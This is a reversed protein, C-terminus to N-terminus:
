WRLKQSFCSVATQLRGRCPPESPGVKMKRVAHRKRRKKVCGAGGGYMRTRIRRNSLNTGGPVPLSPTQLEPRRAPKVERTLMWQPKVAGQRGFARRLPIALASGEDLGL